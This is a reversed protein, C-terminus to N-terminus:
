LIYLWLILSLSAEDDFIELLETTDAGNTIYILLLQSLEHDSLNGKPAIWKAAICVFVLFQELGDLWDNETM